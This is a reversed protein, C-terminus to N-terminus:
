QILNILIGLNRKPNGICKIYFFIKIKNFFIKIKNFFIKIKNFFYFIKIMTETMQVTVMIEMKTM